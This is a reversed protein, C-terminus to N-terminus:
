GLIGENKMAERAMGEGQRLSNPDGKSAYLQSPNYYDVHRSPVIGDRYRNSIEIPAYSGMTKDPRYPAKIPLMPYWTSLDAVGIQLGAVFNNDARVVPVADKRWFYYGVGGIIAAIVGIKIGRNM